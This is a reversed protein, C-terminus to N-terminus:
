KDGKLLGVEEFITKVDKSKIVRPYSSVVRQSVIKLLLKELTQVKYRKSFGPLYTVPTRMLENWVTATAEWVIGLHEIRKQSNRLKTNIEQLEQISLSSPNLQKGREVLKQLVSIERQVAEKFIKTLFSDDGEEKMLYIAPMYAFIGISGDLIELSLKILRDFERIFHEKLKDESIELLGENYNWIPISPIELFYEKEPRKGVAYYVVHLELNGCHIRKCIERQILTSISSRVEWSVAVETFDGLRFLPLWEEVWFPKLGLETLEDFHWYVFEGFNVRDPHIEERYLDVLKLIKFKNERLARIFAEWEEKVEPVEFARITIDIDRAKSTRLISGSIHIERIEFPYYEENIDEVTEILEGLKESLKPSKIIEFITPMVCWLTEKKKEFLM